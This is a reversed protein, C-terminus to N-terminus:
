TRIRDPDYGFDNKIMHRLDNAFWEANERVADSSDPNRALQVANRYGTAM